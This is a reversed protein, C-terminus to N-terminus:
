YIDQQEPQEEEEDEQEEETKRTREQLLGLELCVQCTDRVHM